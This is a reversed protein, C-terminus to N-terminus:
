PATREIVLVSGEVCPNLTDVNDRYMWQGNTYELKLAVQGHASTPNACNVARVNDTGSGGGSAAQQCVADNLTNDCLRSQATTPTVAPGWEAVLVSNAACPQTTSPNNNDAYRWQGTGYTTGNYTLHLGIVGGGQQGRCNIARASSTGRGGSAAAAECVADAVGDACLRFRANGSPNPTSAVLTSGDECDHAGSNDNGYYVWKGNVYSVQLGIVGSTSADRCNVPRQNMGGEGTNAAASACVRNTNTLAPVSEANTCLRLDPRGKFPRWTRQYLALLNQGLVKKVDENSYGLRVLGLTVDALQSVPVIWDFANEPFHDDGLAVHDVGQKVRVDDIAELLRDFSPNTYYCKCFHIAVVGNGGVSRVINTSADDTLEGGLRQPTDHSRVVPANTQPIINLLTANDMHSLDILIGLRNAKRIVDQGFQTTNSGNVLLNNFGWRLQTERWGRDYYDQVNALDGELQNAGESGLIIGLKGENKAAQIDDATKVIKLNNSAVGALEALGSLYGLFRERYSLAPCPRGQSTSGPPDPPIYCRLRTLRDWDTGDTTLKATLATVGGAKADAFDGVFSGNIKVPFDHTHALLIVSERHLQDARSLDAYTVARGEGGGNPNSNFLNAVLGASAPEAWFGVEDIAGDLFLLVGKFSGVVVPTANSPLTQPVTYSGFELERQTGDVYLKLREANTAAAGDFSWVVNHWTSTLLTTNKATIFAGVAFAARPVGAQFDSWFSNGADGWKTVFAQQGQTSNLNVWASVTLKTAGGFQSPNGLDLYAQAAPTMLRANGLKGNTATARVASGNNASASDDLTNNGASEDLAFYSFPMLRTAPPTQALAPAADRGTLFVALGLLLLLAALLLPTRRTSFLTM